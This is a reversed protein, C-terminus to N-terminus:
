PHANAVSWTADRFILNLMELKVQIKKGISFTIGTKSGVLTSTAESFVLFDSCVESIHIFGEFGLFDLDFSLGQSKITTVTADFIHNPDERVLKDLYRLKKLKLVSMEAKFSLRERLSCQEAIADLDPKYSTDFLLRHIVLDSYRRIPSTFHTYYELALGYHGINDKSYVALKMSRIYRVALQEVFISGSAQEFLAQIDAEKPNPPLRFGLLRAYSFFEKMIASDPEEHIRFISRQGNDELHRSVTENAFLMFEEVLQHTIDYEIIQQGKPVGDEGLILRVEPLALDVSGRARRKKKLHTYLEVLLHLLPALPSEKKGDLVEKAEEYTFRKKSEIMGKVIKYQILEGNQDFEALVSVTYRIVGEKLSCIENSLEEPLMPVVDDVFYTSNARSFAEKDLPSENTVFHSVDAIHVGLHYHGNQDKKLSLADDYDRATVPDITICDEGRLDTRSRDVELTPPLAKAAKVTEKPFVKTLQFEAIAIKTDVLANEINGFLEHFKCVIADETAKLIEMSIRDGIRWKEAGSKKLLIKRDEGVVPAFIVADGGSLIEIVTGVLHTRAREKIRIICGEFGKKSKSLVEIEVIDGDIAGKMKSSPIFVDEHSDKTPTVFGFGRTHISIKGILKKM